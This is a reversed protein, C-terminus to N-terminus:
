NTYVAEDSFEKMIKRLAEHVGADDIMNIYEVVKEVLQPITTLDMGHFDTRSLYNYVFIDKLEFKNKEVFDIVAPEDNISFEAGDSIRSSSTYFKILAALSFTLLSPLKGYKEYYSVMSPLCRTRWKSVSNLSISLLSHNMFPNLFREIVSDAFEVLEDKDLSLCPIIETHLLKDIYKGITFDEAAERVYDFGCLWALMAFSTHAGNLICVKRERYPKCSDTILIPLNPTNSFLNFSKNNNQGHSEIVWLAFPETVTLLEDEYGLREFFEYKKEDPFGSVIRDVLTNHFECYHELWFSFEDPLVWLYAYKLVCEKLRDGNNEILECPIIHLGSEPVGNFFSFREYLFQTLKGPFTSAPKDSLSDKDSFAIGAETTNSIVFELTDIHACTVYTVFDAYPNVIDSISDIHLIDDVVKGSSVGRVAVNYLCNQKTFKDINGRSTPKVILVNGNYEGSNNALQLFSDAFARLFNGEGFQLIRIPRNVKEFNLKQLTTKNM